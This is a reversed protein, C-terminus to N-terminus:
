RSEELLEIEKLKQRCIDRLGDTNNEYHDLISQLTARAQFYDKEKIYSDALLIFGKVVWFEYSSFDDNLRYVDDRMEELLDQEFYIKSRTYLAEATKEDRSEDIVYDFHFKATRLNGEKYQVQGLILNADILDRKPVNEIPLLQVAKDKAANFNESKYDCNMQGVISQIFTPRTTAIPELQKHYPLSKDCEGKGYYYTALRNLSRETFENRSLNVVFDYNVLAKPIQNNFFQCEALYYRVETTFFGKDKFRTLYVEFSRSAGECNGATYQNMASQFLVSDQYTIRVDADPIDKIYTFYEDARGQKVYIQEIFVIAEKSYLTKPFREVVSKYYGLAVDDKGQNYYILGMKLYAEPLYKSNDYKSIILRFINESLAFEGLELHERGIQYLAHDIYISKPFDRQIRKLTEIKQRPNDLLGQLMGIQFLAYDASKYNNKVVFEYERIAQPYQRNLFYCDALREVNDMFISKNANTMRENQRYRQFYNQARTYDKMKFYNYGASYNAYTRYESKSAGSSSLFRSLNGISENYDNNRFAIEGLWFYSQAELEKDIPFRLSKRFMNSAKNFEKNLYFEEARHYTIIQYAEKSKSDMQDMSELIEIAANYNKTSLFIDAMIGKAADINKSYPYKKIFNKLSSIAVNHIGTEAALKAYKFHSLEMIGKDYDKKSAEAFANMARKKRDLAIEAIGLQYSGAQGIESDLSAIESFYEAAKIFYEAMSYTHAVQYIEEPLLKYVDSEYKQFENLALSYNGLQYHLKGRLLILDDQNKSLDLDKIMNFADEYKEQEYYIHAIYLRTTKPGQDGIKNFTSLACDYQKLVYCQYGYYYTAEVQYEGKSNLLKQFEKKAEVYNKSRFHSYGTKFIIEDRQAKPLGRPDIEQYYQIAQRHRNRGYYHNALTLAIEKSLTNEPYKKYIRTLKNLTRTQNLKLRCLLNYVESEFILYDSKQNKQYRDFDQIAAVYLEKQYLMVAHEYIKIPDTYYQTQQGFLSISNFQLLGLFVLLFASQRIKKM